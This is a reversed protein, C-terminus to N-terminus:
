KDQIDKGQQFLAYKRDSFGKVIMARNIKVKRTVMEENIEQIFGAIQDIQIQIDKEFKTKFERNLSIM